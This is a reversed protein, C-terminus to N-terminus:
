CEQKLLRCFMRVNRKEKWLTKRYFDTYLKTGHKHKRLCRVVVFLNWPTGIRTHTHTHTPTCRYSEFPLCLGGSLLWMAINLSSGVANAVWCWPLHHLHPVIPLVVVSVIVRRCLFFLEAYFRISFYLSLSHVSFFYVIKIGEVLYFVRGKELSILSVVCSLCVRLSYTFCRCPSASCLLAFANVVDDPRRRCYGNGISIDWLTIDKM